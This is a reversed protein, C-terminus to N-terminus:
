RCRPVFTAFLSPCEEYLRPSRPLPSRCPRSAVSPQLSGARDWRAIVVSTRGGRLAIPNGIDFTPPEMEDASTAIAWRGGIRSGCPRCPRERLGVNPDGGLRLVVVGDDRRLQDAVRGRPRRRPSDARPGGGQDVTQRASSTSARWTTWPPSKPAAIPPGSPAQGAPVPPPSRDRRRADSAPIRPVRFRRHAIRSRADGSARRPPVCTRARLPPLDRPRVARLADRGPGRRLEASPGVDEAVVGTPRGNSEPMRAWASRVAPGADHRM